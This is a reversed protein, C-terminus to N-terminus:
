LLYPLCEFGFLLVQIVSSIILTTAKKSDVLVIRNNIFYFSALIMQFIAVFSCLAILKEIITNFIVLDLGSIESIFSEIVNIGIILFGDFSQFLWIFFYILYNFLFGFSLIIFGVGLVIRLNNFDNDDDKLNLLKRKLFIGKLSLLYLIGLALLIFVIVFKLILFLVPFFNIFFIYLNKSLKEFELAINIIM